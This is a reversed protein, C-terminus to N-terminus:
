LLARDLLNWWPSPGSLVLFLLLVWPHPL